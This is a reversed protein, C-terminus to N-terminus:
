ETPPFASPCLYRNNVFIELTESTKPPKQLTKFTKLIKFTETFTVPIGINRNPPPPSTKTRKM